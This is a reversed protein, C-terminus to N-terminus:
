ERPWTRLEEYIRSIVEGRADTTGPGRRALIITLEPGAEPLPRTEWFIQPTEEGNEAVDTHPALLALRPLTSPSFFDGLSGANGPPPGIISSTYQLKTRAKVGITSTIAQLIRSAAM